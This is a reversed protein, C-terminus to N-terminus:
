LAVVIAQLKAPKRDRKRSWRLLEVEAEQKHRPWYSAGAAYRDLEDQVTAMSSSLNAVDCLLDLMKITRASM